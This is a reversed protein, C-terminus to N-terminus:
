RQKQGFQVPICLRHRSWNTYGPDCHRLSDVSRQTRVLDICAKFSYEPHFNSRRCVYVSRNARRLVSRPFSVTTQNLKRSNDLRQESYRHDELEPFTFSYLDTNIQVTLSVYKEILFNIPLCFIIFSIMFM